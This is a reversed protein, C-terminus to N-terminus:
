LRQIAKYVKLLKKISNVNEESADVVKNDLLQIQIEQHEEVRALERKLSNKREKLLNYDFLGEESNFVSPLAFDKEIKQVTDKHESVIIADIEKNTIQYDKRKGSEINQELGVASWNASGIVVDKNDFVALKCHLRQDIAELTKFARIPVGAELMSLYAKQCYPFEDIIDPSILIKAEFPRGGNQAEKYRDIILNTIEKHSLVFLEATLSNATKIKNKIYDGISESGTAGISALERPKNTLVTVAPNEVPKVEIIDLNGSAYRNKYEPKNYIEGLIQDYEINEALIKKKLRTYDAQEDITLPGKILKTVGLRQWAYKWDKNFIEDIINDVETHEYLKGPKEERSEIAVCVDHNASSHNGWNMGGLIAKKSDIALLKVHQLVAGQQNSRPYPVVDIGNEKLYKIMEMNAYKRYKDRKNVLGKEILAPDVFGFDREKSGNGDIYWKHVDLIVQVKLAPNEKKKEILAGLLKQQYEWGPKAEAGKSPWDKGDIDKNQFEFMEVQISKEASKVYELTKEFIQESDILTTIKTRGVNATVSPEPEVGPLPALHPIYRLIYQDPSIGLKNSYSILKQALVLGHDMKVPKLENPIPHEIVPLQPQWDKLNSLPTKNNDKRATGFSIVNNNSFNKNLYVVM